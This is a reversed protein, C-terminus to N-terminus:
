LGEADFAVSGDILHGITPYFKQIRGNDSSRLALLSYFDGDALVSKLFINTDM